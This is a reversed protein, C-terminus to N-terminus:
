DNCDTELRLLCMHSTGVMSSLVSTTSLLAIGALPILGYFMLRELSVGGLIQM